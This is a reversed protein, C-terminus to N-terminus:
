DAFDGVLVVEGDLGQAVDEVSDCPGVGGDCAEFVVGVGVGLASFVFVPVGDLLALVRALGHDSSLNLRVPCALLTTSM